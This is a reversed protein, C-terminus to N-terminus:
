GMAEKDRLIIVTTYERSVKALIFVSNLTDNSKETRKNGQTGMQGNGEMCAQKEM